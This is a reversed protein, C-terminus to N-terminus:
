MAQLVSMAGAGEFWVVPINASRYEFIPVKTRIQSRPTAFVRTNIEKIAAYELSSLTEKLLDVFMGTRKMYGSIGEVFIDDNDAAPEFLVVIAQPPLIALLNDLWSSSSAFDNSGLAYERVHKLFLVDNPRMKERWLCLFSESEVSGPTLNFDMASVTEAKFLFEIREDVCTLLRQFNSKVEREDLRKDSVFLRGVYPHPFLDAGVLPYFCQQKKNLVNLMALIKLEHCYLRLASSFDEIQAGLELLHYFMQRMRM